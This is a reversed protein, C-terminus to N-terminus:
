IHILSLNVVPPSVLPKSIRLRWRRGPSGSHCPSAYKTVGSYRRVSRIGSSRSIHILSLYFTADNKPKTFYATALHHPEFGLQVQEVNWLSRLLLGTLVVLM